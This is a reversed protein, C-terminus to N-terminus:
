KGDQELFDTVVNSGRNTLTLLPRQLNRDNQQTQIFAMEKETNMRKGDSGLKLGGKNPNSGTLFLVHRSMQSKSINLATRIDMATVSSHISLYLLIELDIADLERKRLLTLKSLLFEASVSTNPM